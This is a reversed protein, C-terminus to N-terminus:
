EFHPDWYKAWYKSECGQRIEEVAGKFDSVPFRIADDYGDLRVHLKDEKAFLALTGLRRKNMHISVMGRNVGLVWRTPKGNVYVITNNESGSGFLGGLVKREREPVLTTTLVLLPYKQDTCLMYFAHTETSTAAVRGSGEGVVRWGGVEKFSGGNLCVSGWFKEFTSTGIQSEIIYAAGDAVYRSFGIYGGFGNKANVEGCYYESGDGGQFVEENKFQASEPDKFMGKILLQAKSLPTSSVDETGFESELDYCLLRKESDEIKSCDLSYASELFLLGVLVILLRSVVAGWM